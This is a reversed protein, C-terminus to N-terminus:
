TRQEQDRQLMGSVEALVNYWTMMEEYSNAKILLTKKTVSVKSSVDKGQLEFKFKDSARDAPKGLIAEPLYIAVAPHHSDRFSRSPYEFLYRSKSIVYYNSVYKKNLTGERRSLIGDLIPETSPHNFDPYEVQSIVRKSSHEKIPIKPPNSSANEDGITLNGMNTIEQLDRTNEKPLGNEDVSLLKGKNHRTFNHWDYDDRVANLSEAVFNVNNLLHGYYNGLCTNFSNFVKKLIEMIQKELIQFVIENNELFDFHTNEKQLQEDGHYMVVRKVFYPDSKYDLKSMEASAPNYSSEFQKTANQLRSVEKSTQSSLKKLEKLEKQNDSILKKKRMQIDGGVKKLEPLIQQKIVSVGENTAQANLDMRLKLNEFFQNIGGGKVQTHPKQEAQTTISGTVPGTSPDSPDSEFGPYPQNMLSKNLKDFHKLDGQLISLYYDTFSELNGVVILWKDFRQILLESSDPLHEDLLKSSETTGQGDASLTTGQTKVRAPSTPQSM